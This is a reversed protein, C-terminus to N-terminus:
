GKGNLVALDVCCPRLVATRKENAFKGVGSQIRKLPAHGFEGALLDGALPTPLARKTPRIRSDSQETLM